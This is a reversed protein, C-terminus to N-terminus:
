VPARTRVGAQLSTHTTWANILRCRSDVSELFRPFAAGESCLYVNRHFIRKRELATLPSWRSRHFEAPGHSIRLWAVDNPRRQRNGQQNPVTDSLYKFSPRELSPSYIGNLETPGLPLGYRPEM